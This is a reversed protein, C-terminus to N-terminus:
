NHRKRGAQVPRPQLNGVERRDLRPCPPSRLIYLVIECQYCSRLIQLFAYALSVERLVKNPVTVEYALSLIRFRRLSQLAYYTGLYDM